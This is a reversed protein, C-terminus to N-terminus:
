SLAPTASQCDGCDHNAGAAGACLLTGYLDHPGVRPGVRPAGGRPPPQAPSRLRPPVRCGYAWWRGPPASSRTGMHDEQRQASHLFAPITTKGSFAVRM